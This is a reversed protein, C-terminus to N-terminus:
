KCPQSKWGTHPCIGQTVGFLCNKYPLFERGQMLTVLTRRYEITIEKQQEVRQSYKMIQHLKLVKCRLNWKLLQAGSQEKQVLILLSFNTKVVSQPKNTDEFM